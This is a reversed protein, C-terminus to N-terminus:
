SPIVVSLQKDWLVMDGSRSRSLKKLVWIDITCSGSGLRQGKRADSIYLILCNKLSGMSIIIKNDDYVPLKIKWITEDCFDFRM